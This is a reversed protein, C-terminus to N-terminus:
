RDSEAVSLGCTALIISFDQFSFDEAVWRFCQWNRFSPPTFRLTACNGADDLRVLQVCSGAPAEVWGISEGALPKWATRVSGPPVDHALREVLALSAEVERALVRLRAYGDGEQETPVVPTVGDYEGYPQLVRVDNAVGSARAFPGLAGFERAHAQTLIGVREIRDLFTSTYRLREVSTRLRRVLEGLARAADRVADDPLDRALGGIAITGFLYRHGTLAGCLRLMREEIELLQAAAVILATSDVIARIVATHRRIREIEAVLTRLRQARPPTAIRLAGEAARCFAWGHAFASTGNAREVLLLADQASRGQALKEIGRYKYFLRPVTRVVDEGVTELLFLASEAEGAYIPGVPMVFAGEERLVRRPQWERQAIAERLPSSARMPAVGEEWRNDHLVFDGLRPHGTFNIGFLDEIEREFWDASVDQPSLSPLSRTDDSRVFLQTWGENQPGCFVYRLEPVKSDDVAITALRWGDRRLTACTSLLADGDITTSRM